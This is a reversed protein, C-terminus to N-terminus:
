RRSSSVRWELQQEQQKQEDTLSRIKFSRALDTVGLLTDLVRLWPLGM